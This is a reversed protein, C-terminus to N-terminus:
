YKIISPICCCHMKSNINALTCSGRQRNHYADCIFYSPIQRIYLQYRKNWISYKQCPITKISLTDIIYVKTTYIISETETHNNLLLNLITRYKIRESHEPTYNKNFIAPNFKDNLFENLIPDFSNILSASLILLTLTLILKM